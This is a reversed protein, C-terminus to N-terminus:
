IVCTNLDAKVVFSKLKRGENATEDIGLLQSISIESNECM